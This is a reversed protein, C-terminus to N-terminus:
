QIIREAVLWTHFLTSITAMIKKGNKANEKEKKRWGNKITEEYAKKRYAFYTYIAIKRVMNM